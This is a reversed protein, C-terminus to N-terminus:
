AEHERIPAADRAIIGECGRKEPKRSLLAVRLRLPHEAEHAIRSGAQGLAHSRLGLRRPCGIGRVRREISRVLGVLVEDRVERGFLPLKRFEHPSQRVLM